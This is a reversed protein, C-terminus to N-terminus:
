LWRSYDDYHIVGDNFSYPIIHYPPVMLLTLLANLLRGAWKTYQVSWSIFSTTSDVTTRRDTRGYRQHVTTTYNTLFYNFSYDAYRRREESGWDLVLCVDGFKAHFLPSTATKASYRCYRQFQALYSWPGLNSNIVLLFNCVRKRNTGFDIVKSSRSRGNGVRSWLLTNRRRWDGFNSHLCVWM